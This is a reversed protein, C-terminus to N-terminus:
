AEARQADIKKDGLESLRRLADDTRGSRVMEAVQRVDERTAVFPSFDRKLPPTRSTGPEPKRFIGYITHRQFVSPVNLGAMAICSQLLREEYTVRFAELPEPEYGDALIEYPRGPLAVDFDYYSVGRGRRVRMERAAQLSKEMCAKMDRVYAARDSLHFARLALEEELMDFFMLGTTHSDRYTLRNPTEAVVFIGGPRLAKWARRLTQLREPVTQHELVASFMIVDVPPPLLEDLQDFVQPSFGQMFRVNGVGMIEARRRAVELCREKPDVGLVEGAIRAIAVGSSGTGCGIELVRQGRLDFVRQIWPIVKTVTRNYRIFANADVDHRGQKTEAHAAADGYILDIYARRIAEREPGEPLVLTEMDLM